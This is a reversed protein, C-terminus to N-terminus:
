LAQALWHQGFPTLEGRGEWGALSLRPGHKDWVCLVQELLVTQPRPKEEEELLVLSVQGLELVRGTRVRDKDLWLVMSRGSKLNARLERQAEQLEVVTTFM